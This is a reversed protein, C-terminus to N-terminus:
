VCSTCINNILRVKYKRKKLCSYKKKKTEILKICKKGKSRDNGKKENTNIKDEARPPQASYQRRQLFQFLTSLKIQEMLFHIVGQTGLLIKEVGDLRKAQEESYSNISSLHSIMELFHGKMELFMDRVDTTESKQHVEEARPNCIKLGQLDTKIDAIDQSINELKVFVSDHGVLITDNKHSLFDLKTDMINISAPTKTALPTQSVKQVTIPGQNRTATPDYRKALSNVLSTKSTRNAASM